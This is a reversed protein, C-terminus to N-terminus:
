SIRCHRNVRGEDYPVTGMSADELYEFLVLFNDVMLENWVEALVEGAKKFNRKELELDM